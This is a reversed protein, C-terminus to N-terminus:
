TENQKIKECYNRLANFYYDLNLAPDLNAM